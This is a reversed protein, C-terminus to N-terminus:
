RTLGTFWVEATAGKIQASVGRDRERKRERMRARATKVRVLKYVTYTQTHVKQEQGLLVIGNCM